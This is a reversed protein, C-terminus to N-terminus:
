ATDLWTSQIHGGRPCVHTASAIELFYRREPGDGYSEFTGRCTFQIARIAPAFVVLCVSIALSGMSQRLARLFGSQTKVSASVQSIVNMLDCHMPSPPGPSGGSGRPSWTRGCSWVVRRPRIDLSASIDTIAAMRVDHGSM